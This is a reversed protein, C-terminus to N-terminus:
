VNTPRANNKHTLKPSAIKEAPSFTGTTHLPMVTERSQVSTRREKKNLM